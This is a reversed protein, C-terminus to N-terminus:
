RKLSDTKFLSLLLLLFLFFIYIMLYIFTSGLNKVVSMSEFGNIKFFNNLAHDEKMEILIRGNDSNKGYFFDNFWKDTMLM